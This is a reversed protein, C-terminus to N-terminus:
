KDEKSPVAPHAQCFRRAAQLTSRIEQLYHNANQLGQLRPMWHAPYGITEVSTQFPLAVTRLAELQVYPVYIQSTILLLTAGAKVHEHQLFFLLTDASNARRHLPDSSPACVATIELPAGQFTTTLHRVVWSLNASAPDDYREERFASGDFGFAKQTGAVLLDFENSAGPAYTDTADRESDAVPRAAGLLVVQKSGVGSRILEAALLPRFKCSLRAGGLVVIYDYRSLTPHRAQVLGLHTAHELIRAEAPESLGTAASLWRASGHGQRVMDDALAGRERAIRRFDWKESFAELQELTSDLSGDLVINDDFM